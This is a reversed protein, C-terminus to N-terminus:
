RGTAGPAPPRLYEFHAPDPVLWPGGWTFGWRELVEVLRPDQTSDRGQPNDPVNVDFAVGWAHRSVSDLRHTLRSAHCGAYGGPDLTHALHDRELEALAREFAELVTRHCRVTGLVPVDATALNDALWAPDQEIQVEGPARRYSFEGFREKIEAQTLVADGHRLVPSEGPGRLRLPPGGPLLGRVAQELEAREGRYALLLYRPTGAPTGLASDVTVALEAGAIVADDVLGAVTLDPGDRVELRAGEGLGRLRAGTRSLLAEGAQLGGILPVDSKSVFAPYTDAEIALADLPIVWGGDLVDAPQGDADWSGTLELLGGHVVTVREVAPLARVAGAFGEPLGGPTWALLLREDPTPAPAAKAFPAPSQSAALAPTAPSPAPSPAPLPSAPAGPQQLALMGGAGAAFGTLVVAALVLLRRM